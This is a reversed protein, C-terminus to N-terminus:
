PGEETRHPSLRVTFRTRKGDETEVEVVGGKEEVLHDVISLGRGPLLVAGCRRPTTPPSLTGALLASVVM